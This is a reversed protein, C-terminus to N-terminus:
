ANRAAEVHCGPFLKIISSVSRPNEFGVCAQIHITGMNAGKELQARAYKAGLHKCASIFESVTETPNNKTLSFTRSKTM